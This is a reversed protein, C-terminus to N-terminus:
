QGEYEKRQWKRDQEYIADIKRQQEASTQHYPASSGYLITGVSDDQLTRTLNQTAAQWAKQINPGLISNQQDVQNVNTTAIKGLGRYHATVKMVDTPSMEVGAAGAAKAYDTAQEYPKHQQLQWANSHVFGETAAAAAQAAPHSSSKLLNITGQESGLAGLANAALHGQSHQSANKEHSKEKSTNRAMNSPMKEIADALKELAAAQKIDISRKEEDM